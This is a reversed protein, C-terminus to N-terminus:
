EIYSVSMGAEAYGFVRFGTETREGPLHIRVLEQLVAKEQEETTVAIEVWRISEYGGIRFHYYWEGDWPSLYGNEVSLTRFYPSLTGLGYMALRLKDWKTNNMLPYMAEVSTRM